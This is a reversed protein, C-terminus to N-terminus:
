MASLALRTSSARSAGPRTSIRSPIIGFFGISASAAPSMSGIMKKAIKKPAATEASGSSRRSCTTPKKSPTFSAAMTIIWQIM